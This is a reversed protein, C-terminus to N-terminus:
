LTRWIVEVQINIEQHDPVALAIWLVHVSLGEQSEKSTFQMGADTKITEMDWWGFEDVKGFISQFMDLKNMVEENTINKM